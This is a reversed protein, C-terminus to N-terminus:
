HCIMYELIEARMAQAHHQAESHPGRSGTAVAAAAAAFAQVPTATSAASGGATAAAVYPSQGHASGLLVSDISGRGDVHAM